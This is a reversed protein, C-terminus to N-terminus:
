LLDIGTGIGVECRVKRVPLVSSIFPDSRMFNNLLSIFYDMHFTKAGHGSSLSIGM